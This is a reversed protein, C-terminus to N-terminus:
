DAERKQRNPARLIANRFLRLSIFLFFLGILFEIFSIGWGDEFNKAFPVVAFGVSILLFMSGFIVLGARQVPKAHPDGNWLFADVSSGNRMTDPWVTTRQKAEIDERLEEFEPDDRM